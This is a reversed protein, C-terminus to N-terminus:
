EIIEIVKGTPDFDLCEYRGLGNPYGLQNSIIRTKGVKQEDCEHTHGYIWYDPQYKNIVDVMDLSNFAPWIPSDKYQSNPNVVPAHHTIIIRHGTLKQEFWKELNTVFTKHLKTSREPTLREGEQINILRFDNITSYANEMAEPDNNFDTWMTGGFFHTGEISIGEDVLFSVQPLQNSLWKKFSSNEQNIPKQTYYEHNGAIYIVPKDWESLLQKLPSYNGFTIIDGSLILIDGDVNEPICWGHKFELHLDSYTIIKMTNAM